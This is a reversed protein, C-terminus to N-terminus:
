AHRTPIPDLSERPGAPPDIAVLRSVLRELMELAAPMASQIAPSLTMGGEEVPELTAPECGILYLSERAGGFQRSMSLVQEATWSHPNVESHQSVARPLEVRLQYLDGANGGRTAADLLIVEQYNEMLEFALDMGRIGFDVARVGSAPQSAIYRQALFSGFGDDGMFINGLGAVLITPILM